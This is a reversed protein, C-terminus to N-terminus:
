LTRDHSQRPLPTSSDYLLPITRQQTASTLVEGVQVAYALSLGARAIPNECNDPVVSIFFTLCSHPHLWVPQNIKTMNELSVHIASAAPLMSHYQITHLLISAEGAKVSAIRILPTSTTCWV